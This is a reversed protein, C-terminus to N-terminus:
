CCRFKKSTAAHPSRKSKESGIESGFEEFSLAVSLLSHFHFHFHFPLPLRSDNEKFMFLKKVHVKDEVNQICERQM